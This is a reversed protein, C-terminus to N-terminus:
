HQTKLQKNKKKRQKPANPIDDPSRDGMRRACPSGIPSGVPSNEKGRFLHSILPQQGVNQTSAKAEDSTVQKKNKSSSDKGATENDATETQSDESDDTDESEEGDMDMQETVPYLPSGKIHGSQLCDYGVTIHGKGKCNGCELDNKIQKQEKHYISANWIGIQVKKQCPESPIVVDVFRDGTKFNTLKGEKTRAREYKIPSIM